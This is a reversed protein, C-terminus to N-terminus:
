TCRTSVTVKAEAWAGGVGAGLTVMIVGALVRMTRSM